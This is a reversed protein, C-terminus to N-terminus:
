RGGKDLGFFALGISFERRWTAAIPRPAIQFRDRPNEKIRVAKPLDTM